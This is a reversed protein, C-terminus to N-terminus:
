FKSASSECDESDLKTLTSPPKIASAPNANFEEDRKDLQRCGYIVFILLVIALLAGGLHSTVVGYFFMGTFVSGMSKM